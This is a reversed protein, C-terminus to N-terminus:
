RTSERPLRVASPVPNKDSLNSSGMQIPLSPKHVIQTELSPTPRYCLFHPDDRSLGVRSGSATLSPLPTLQHAWCTLTFYKGRLYTRARSLSAYALARLQCSRAVEHEEEGRSVWWNELTHLTGCLGARFM